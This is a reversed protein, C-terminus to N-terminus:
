CKIGELCLTSSITKELKQMFSDNMKGIRCRLRSKSINVIQNTIASSLHLNKLHEPQAIIEDKFDFQLMGPINKLTSTCPIVIVNKCKDSLNMYNPSVIIAPHLGGLESDYPSGFDVWFVNGRYITPLSRITSESYNQVNEIDLFSCISQLAESPIDGEFIIQNRAIKARIKQNVLIRTVQVINLNNVTIVLM